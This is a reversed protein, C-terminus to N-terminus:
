TQFTQSLFECLQQGPRCYPSNIEVPRATGVRYLTDEYISTGFAVFPDDGAAQKLANIWTDFESQRKESHILDMKQILVFVPAKPSRKALAKLCRSFYQISLEPPRGASDLKTVEFVYILASVHAFLDLIGDDTLYSEM